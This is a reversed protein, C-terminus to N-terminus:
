AITIEASPDLTRYFLIRIHFQRRYKGASIRLCYADQRFTRRHAAHCICLLPFILDIHHDQAASACRVQRLLRRFIDSHEIHDVTEIRMCPNRLMERIYVCCRFFASFHTNNRHAPIRSHERQVAKICVRDKRVAFIICEPAFTDALSM